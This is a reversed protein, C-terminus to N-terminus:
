FCWALATLVFDNFVAPGHRWWLLLGAVVLCLGAGALILPASRSSRHSQAQQDATVGM